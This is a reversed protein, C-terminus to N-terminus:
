TLPSVSRSEFVRILNETAEQPSACDGPILPLRDTHSHAPADRDPYITFDDASAGSLDVPEVEM